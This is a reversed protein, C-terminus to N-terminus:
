NRWRWRVMMAVKSVHTRRVRGGRLKRESVDDSGTGLGEGFDTLGRSAVQLVKDEGDTGLALQPLLHPDREHDFRDDQDHLCGPRLAFWLWCVM